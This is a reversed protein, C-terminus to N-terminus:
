SPTLDQQLWQEKMNQIAARLLPVKVPKSVYDDMGAQLCKERDGEMANATMAIIPIHTSIEAARIRRTAAFGDMQPMMCDMLILDYKGQEWAAVAELGDAAVDASVGLKKLLGLAVKQNILNDEVLLVNLDQFGTTEITRAKAAAPYQSRTPPQQVDRLTDLLSQFRLPVTVIGQLDRNRRETTTPRETLPTALISQVILTPNRETLMRTLAQRDSDSYKRDCIVVQAASSGAPVPALLSPNERIMEPDIPKAGLSLLAEAFALRTGEDAIALVPSQDKMDPWPDPTIPCQDVVPLTTTFHFTSGHGLRSEVDITGGMMETLKRCISLGLGTGGYKRTTSNDAQSFAEFLTQVKSESVGIGTDTVSYRLSDTVNDQRIFQVRISVSGSETFKLSNGVLNILIQRLRTPDGMVHPPVEHEVIGALNLNKEAAKIGLLNLVEDIVARPSMPIIELDLKGAEIKSYDLIDNLLSLLSEASDGVLTAYEKQEASLDTDLLMNNMGIVGNMPTRIEHSMTALFESKAANAAEAAQAMENARTAVQELQQSTNEAEEKARRLSERAMVMSTIDKSSGRFGTCHGDFDIMPDCNLLMCYEQHTPGIAWFERNSIPAGEILGNALMEHLETQADEALLETLPRGLWYNRDKGTLAEADGSLFLFELQHDTEWVLDGSLLALHAFRRESEVKKRATEQEKSRISSISKAIMRAFALFLMTALITVLGGSAVKTQRQHVLQAQLASSHEDFIADLDNLKELVDDTQRHLDPTLSNMERTAKLYRLHYDYYGSYHVGRSDRGALANALQDSAEVLRAHLRPQQGHSFKQHNWDALHQDLRALTPLFKQDHIAQMGDPDQELRLELILDQCRTAALLIDRALLAQLAADSLTFSSEIETVIDVLRNGAATAKKALIESRSALVLRDARLDLSRLATLEWESRADDLAEFNDTLGAKEALVEVAEQMQRHADTHRIYEHMDFQAQEDDRPNTALNALHQTRQTLQRGYELRLQQAELMSASLEQLARTHAREHTLFTLGLITGTLLGAVVLLWVRGEITTFYQLRNSAM